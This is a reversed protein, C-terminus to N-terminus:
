ERSKQTDQFRPSLPRGHGPLIIQPRLGYRESLTRLEKSTPVYDGIFLIRNAKEYYWVHDAKHIGTYIVLFRLQNEIAEVIDGNKVRVDGRRSKEHTVIRTQSLSQIKKLGVVHDFHGHTLFVFDLKLGNRTLYDLVRNATWIMGGDVGVARDGVVVLYVNSSLIRGLFCVLRGRELEAKLM